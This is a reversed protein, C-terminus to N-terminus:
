RGGVIANKIRIHPGGNSVPVTQGKGCFGPGGSAIDNAVADISNLTEMTSGALSVDKLPKTIKGNEILFGETANFQFMGGFTDVQGGRSGKLYIGSSIDEVLEEFSSEGNAIYTNSMRVMPPRTPGQARASGNPRVGLKAANERDTLFQKLVGNEILIKKEARVGEDDYVFSGFEGEMTPDDFISVLESGVKEGMKGQLISEGSTVLDSESAHGVAEHAFVGALDPDAIVTFKGSPAAIANQLNGLSKIALNGRETIIEPDMLEYGGVGGYRMSYSSIGGENRATINASILVSSQYYEIESGQSSFFNMKEVSDSLAVEVSNIWDHDRFQSILDKLIEVKHDIDIDRPDKKAKLGERTNIIPVPALKREGKKRHSIHRALELAKRGGDKINADGGMSYFGWNGHELVRIGTKTEMSTVAEELEDNNFSISTGWGTGKRIDAYKCGEKELKRFLGDLDM